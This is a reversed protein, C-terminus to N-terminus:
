HEEELAKISSLLEMMHDREYKDSLIFLVSDIADTNSTLSLPRSWSDVIVELDDFEMCGAKSFVKFIKYLDVVRAGRPVKVSKKYGIGPPKLDEESVAPQKILEHKNYLLRLRNAIAVPSTRLDDVIKQTTEASIGLGHRRFANFFVEIARDPDAKKSIFTALSKTHIQYATIDSSTALFNGMWRFILQPVHSSQHLTEATFLHLIRSNAIDLAGIKSRNSHDLNREDALSAKCFDDLRKWEVDSWDEVLDILRGVLNRNLLLMNYLDQVVCGMAFEAKQQNIHPDDTIPSKAISELIRVFMRSRVAVSPEYDFLRTRWMFEFKDDFSPLKAYMFRPIQAMHGQLVKKDSVFPLLNRAAVDLDKLDVLESYDGNMVKIVQGRELRFRELLIDAAALLRGKIWQNEWIKKRRIAVPPEFELCFKIIEVLGMEFDVLSGIERVTSEETLLQIIAEPDSRGNKRTCFFDVFWRRFQDGHDTDSTALFTERIEWPKQRFNLAISAYRHYVDGLFCKLVADYMEHDYWTDTAFSGTHFLHSFLLRLINEPSQLTLGHPESVNFPGYTRWIPDTMHEAVDRPIKDRKMMMEIFHHVLRVEEDTLVTAYKGAMFEFLFKFEHKSGNSEVLFDFLVMPNTMKRVSSLENLYLNASGFSFEFLELIEPPLGVSMMMPAPPNGPSTFTDMGSVCVLAPTCFVVFIQLFM